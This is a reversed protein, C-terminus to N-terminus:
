KLAAGAMKNYLQCSITCMRMAVTRHICFMIEFSMVLSQARKARYNEPKIEKYM